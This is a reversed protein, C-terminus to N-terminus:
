TTKTNKPPSYIDVSMGPYLREQGKIIVKQGPKLGNIIEIRDEHKVGTKVPILEVKGKNVIYVAPQSNRLFLAHFPVVLTDKKETVVLDVHVTDGILCNDCRIDVDAPCMHTAEDLMKQMHTLSYGTGLIFVKQGENITNLKSCPIDFDVVLSSPDYVSVVAEGQNVQAGERKKYAGVIGDFPAYFRLNDLEIQAKALEKQASIWAQKKEEVERRSVFGRKTLPAFREYQKKAIQEASLSLQANKEVDANVITALLTGKTIRQGTTIFADFIGSGKAILTTTHKPHIVGLLRVRQQIKELKVCIVEVVKNPQGLTNKSSYGVSKYLLVM